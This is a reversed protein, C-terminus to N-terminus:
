TEEVPFATIRKAIFMLVVTVDQIDTNGDGNVDGNIVGIDKIKASVDGVAFRAILVADSVDVAGDGNADGPKYGPRDKPDQSTQPTETTQQKETVTLKGASSTVRTSHGGDTVVCRYMYGNNEPSAVIALKNSGDSDIATWTAGGDWSHQWHYDLEYKGAAYVYFLATKGDEVTQDQPDALIM